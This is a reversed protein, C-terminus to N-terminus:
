SKQRSEYKKSLLKNIEKNVNGTESAIRANNLARIRQFGTLEEITVRIYDNLEFYSYEFTRVIDAIETSYPKLLSNEVAARSKKYEALADCIIPLAENSIFENIEESFYPYATINAVSKETLGTIECVQRTTIDNTKVTSRGILWDVSVNCSDAIQGLRLADPLRSGSLYFGTTARSLGIKDAFEEITMSGQLELLAAQFAPFKIESAKNERKM